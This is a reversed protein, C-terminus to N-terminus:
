EGFLKKIAKDKDEDDDVYINKRMNKQRLLIENKMNKDKQVAITFREGRSINNDIEKKILKLQEECQKKMNENQITVEENKLKLAKIEDILKENSKMMKEYSKKKKM